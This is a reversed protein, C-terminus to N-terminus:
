KPTGTGTTVVVTNSFKVSTSSRMRFYETLKNYLSSIRAPRVLYPERVQSSVANFWIAIAAPLTVLSLVLPVSNHALRDDNRNDPMAVIYRGVLHLSLLLWVRYVGLNDHVRVHLKSRRGV